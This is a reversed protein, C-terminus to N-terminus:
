LPLRARVLYGGGPRPGSELRGGFLAVREQMGALGLGAVAGNVDGTGTDAVEVDLADDGYRLM